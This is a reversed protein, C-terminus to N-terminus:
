DLASRRWPRFLCLLVGFLIMELPQGKGNACGQEATPTAPDSPVQAAPTSLQNPDLLGVEAGFHIWNSECASQGEADAPCGELPALLEAMQFLPRTQPSAGQVGQVELAETLRCAIVAGAVENLCTWDVEGQADWAGDGQSVELVGDRLLIWSDGLRVPGRLSFAPPGQRTWTLENSAGLDDPVGRWLERGASTAAVLWLDGAEDMRRFELHSTDDPLATLAQVVGQLPASGEPGLAARWLSPTPSAGVAIIEAHGDTSGSGVSDCRFQDGTEWRAVVAAEGTDTVRLLGTVDADAELLAPIWTADATAHADLAYWPEDVLVPEFTCAGDSSRYLDGGGVMVVTAISDAYAARAQEHDGWQSPCVYTWGEPAYDRALGISTRLLTARGAELDM